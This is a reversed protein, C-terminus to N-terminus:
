DRTRSVGPRNAVVGLRLAVADRDVQRGALTSASIVEELRLVEHAAQSFLWTLNYRSVRGRTEQQRVILLSDALFALALFALLGVIVRNRLRGFAAALMKGLM